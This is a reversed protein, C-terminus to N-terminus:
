PRGSRPPATTARRSGAPRAPRSAVTSPVPCPKPRRALFASRRAAAAASVAHRRRHLLLTHTATRAGRPARAAAGIASGGCRATAAAAVDVVVAGDAGAGAARRWPRAFARARAAAARAARRSPRRPPPPPRSSYPRASRGPSQYWFTCGDSESRSARVISSRIAFCGCRVRSSAISRIPFSISDLSLAALASAISAARSRTPM